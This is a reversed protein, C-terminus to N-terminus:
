EGDGQGAQWAQRGNEIDADTFKASPRQLEIIERARPTDGFKNFIGLVKYANRNLMIFGVGTMPFLTGSPEIGYTRGNVTYTQVGESTMGRVARGASIAAIDAAVDVGPEIVTNLDKAVSGQTVKTLTHRAVPRRVAVDTQGGSTVGGEQGSRPVREERKPTAGARLDRVGGELRADVTGNPDVSATPQGDTVASRTESGRVAMAATPADDGTVRLVSASNQEVLEFQRGALTRANRAGQVSLATLGGMVVLQTLLVAMARQRDEPTGAGRQIRELEVFTVDSLAILQVLDAGAATGTLPVFWRSGGLAAAAGGAKVTISLAGFSAFSAVIQAVDLVVMASTATGLRATDVLHGSASIGGAISGAAFCVTAPISAGATLLGLGVAAVALGAYGVWEYWKTKGTTPAVGGTGGPLVYRVEGEPYRAVEEFFTAMTAATPPGDVTQERPRSPTTLDHLHFRGDKDDKWVYVNMPITDAAPRGAAKETAVTAADPHFLAPLRTAHKDAIQELGTRLQAHHEHADGLARGRADKSTKRLQDAVWRDLGDLMRRYGKFADDWKGRRILGPLQELWSATNQSSMWLFVATVRTEETYPNQSTVASGGGVSPMVHFNKDNSTERQLAAFLRQAALAAIQQELPDVTARAAVAPQLKTMARSLALGADFSEQSLLGRKVAEMRTALLAGELAPIEVDPGKLNAQGDLLTADDKNEDGEKRQVAARQLHTAGHAVTNLQDVRTQKGAAVPHAAAAASSRPRDSGPPGDAFKPM